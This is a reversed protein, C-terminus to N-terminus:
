VPSIRVWSTGSNITSNLLFGMQDQTAMADLSAKFEATTPLRGLQALVEKPFHTIFSRSVHSLILKKASFNINTDAPASYLQEYFETM